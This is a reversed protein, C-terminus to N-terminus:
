NPEAISINMPIGNKAALYIAKEDPNDLDLNRFASSSIGARDAYIEYYAGKIEDLVDIFKDYGTGRNTKFSIIAEEPSQSLKESHNENLVFEKIEERLGGLGMRIRENVMLQDKSNVHITFLNRDKIKIVTDDEVKPPLKIQLGREMVITTTVLFFILLLFAIDATTSVNIEQQPRKSLKM